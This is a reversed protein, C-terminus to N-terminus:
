APWPKRLTARPAAPLPSQSGPSISGPLPAKRQSQKGLSAQYSGLLIPRKESGRPCPPFYGTRRYTRHYAPSIQMRQSWHKLADEMPRPQNPDRQPAYQEQSFTIGHSIGAKQTQDHRGPVSVICCFPFFRCPPVGGHRQKNSTFGICAGVPASARLTRQM